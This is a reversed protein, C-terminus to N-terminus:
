ETAQLVLLPKSVSISPSIKDYVQNIQAAKQEWSFNKVFYQRAGSSLKLRWAEDHFLRELALSFENISLEYGLSYNVKIGCTDDVNEGPGVNNFCLVPLGFGMAEAVVMGGGEHSPFLFVQSSAFFQPLEERQVWEVFRIAATPLGSEVVMKQLREREPGKGILVLELRRQATENQKKYFHAFARITVDFGKLPVFRGVSLVRFKDTAFSQIDPLESAIAPLTVIKETSLKLVKGVSSNLGIVKQATRKTLNLFPDFTWFFRKTRWRLQDIRRAKTGYPLIFEKPIRPHHGVPGWVFPKRLLWLFSPSWDSNFNLHHALDFSWKKALIFFAVGLHWFYHYSLAGREGRKWFSAWRPLDFYEFRLNEGVSLPNQALYREIDPRNNHRTVAVVDCHSCLHLIINWGIGDESGKYPNVAYATILVKKKM